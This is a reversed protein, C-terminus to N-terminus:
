KNGAFAGVLAKVNHDIFSIYDDTGTLSGVQHAMAAIHSASKEAVVHAHKPDFFPTTLIVSIADKKMMAILEQLHRTTPPIGPKPELYGVVDFSFTRSFYPWITHDAVVSRGKFSKVESLWGGIKEDDKQAILFDMLKGREVLQALKSPDYKSTLEVGFLREGLRKAFDTYRLAFYAANEASLQALKGEILKAARFGSVPDNLFHPNGGPHVDGLSRDVVGTPVDLPAIVSSVELFGPAGPLVKDNRANKLLVPAWGVELELGTQIFLDADALARVFSPRAEIYHPDEHGKAFVTVKVKDGGIEQTIAGIDTVTVCINLPSDAASLYVMSLSITILLIIYKM